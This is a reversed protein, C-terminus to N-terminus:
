RGTKWGNSTCRMPATVCRKLWAKVTHYRTHTKSSLKLKGGTLLEWVETNIDAQDFTMTVTPSGGISIVKGEDDPNIPKFEAESFEFVQMSPPDFGPKDSTLGNRDFYPTVKVVQIGYPLPRGPANHQAQHWFEYTGRHKGPKHPAWWWPRFPLDCPAPLNEIM